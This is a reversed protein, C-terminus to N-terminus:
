SDSEAIYEALTPPKKNIIIGVSYDTPSFSINKGVVRYNGSYKPNATQIRIVDNESLYAGVFSSMSYEYQVHLNARFLKQAFDKCKAPSELSKNTVELYTRDFAEMASDHIFTGKVGNAGNVIVITPVKKNLISIDSINNKEDYVQVVPDSDLDSELEIIIQSMSGNDIIRAINPRPLTGSTDIAQSLLTKIIDLLALTGRLPPRVSSVVPTTNGIIATGLKNELKAMTVAKAIAAGASLGDLNDTETLAIKAKESTGGLLMYGLIDQASIEIQNFDMNVMKIWGRFLPTSDTKNLYLCVEKNWLKRMGGQTNPVTFSLTSASLQGPNDYTGDTYDVDVGEITIRPSIENM